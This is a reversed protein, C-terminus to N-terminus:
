NINRWLSELMELNKEYTVFDIQTNKEIGDLVYQIIKEGEKQLTVAPIGCQSFSKSITALLALFALKENDYEVFKAIENKQVRGDADASFIRLLYKIERDEFRVLHRIEHLFKERSLIGNTEDYDLRFVLLKQNEGGLVYATSRLKQRLKILKEVSIRLPYRAEVKAALAEKARNNLVVLAIKCQQKITQRLKEDLLSIERDVVSHKKMENSCNKDINEKLEERKQELNKRMERLEIRRSTAMNEAKFRSERIWRQSSEMEKEMEIQIRQKRDFIKKELKEEVELYYNAKKRVRIDMKERIESIAINWKSLDESLEEYRQKTKKCHHFTDKLDSSIDNVSEEMEYKELSLFSKELDDDDDDSPLDFRVLDDDIKDNARQLKYEMTEKVKKFKKKEVELKCYTQEDEAYQKKLVSLRSERWQDCVNTLNRVTSLVVDPPLPENMHKKRQLRTPFHTNALAFVEKKSLSLFQKVDNLSVLKLHWYESDFARVIFQWEKESIKEVKRFADFLENEPVLGNQHREFCRFSSGIGSCFKSKLRIQFQYLKKPSIQNKRLKRYHRYRKVPWQSQEKELISVTRIKDYRRLSNQVSLSISDDENEILKELKEKRREIELPSSDKSDLLLRLLNLEKDVLRAADVTSLTIPLAPDLSFSTEIFNLWNNQVEEEDDDDSLYESSSSSSFKGYKREILKDKWKETNKCEIKEFDQLTTWRGEMSAVAANIVRVPNWREHRFKGTNLLQRSTSNMGYSFFHALNVLLIKGKGSRDLFRFLINAVKGKIKCIKKVARSFVHKSVITQLLLEHNQVVNLPLSFINGLAIAVRLDASVPDLVTVGYSRSLVKHRLQFLAKQQERTLATQKKGFILSQEDNDDDDDDKCFIESPWSMENETEPPEINLNMRLSRSFLLPETTGIREGPGLLLSNASSPIANATVVSPYFEEEFERAADAVDDTATELDFLAADVSSTRSRTEFNITSEGGFESAALKVDKVATRFEEIATAVSSNEEEMVSEGFKEAEMELDGLASLVPSEVEYIKLKKM